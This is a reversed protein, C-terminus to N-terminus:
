IVIEEFLLGSKAYASQKPAVRIYRALAAIVASALDIRKSEMELRSRDPAINGNGDARATVCDMHWNLVPHNAHRVKGELTAELLYKMPANLTPPGQRVEVCRYGADVLEQIFKDANWPDYCIEKIKYVAALADIRQRVVDYRITPGPTTELAGTLIWEELPQHVRRTLYSLRQEPIWVSPLIDLSGDGAPFVAALATMATTSSLDLGIYCDRDILPRLPKGCALWADAPMWRDVKQGWVSGHYRKYAAQEAPKDLAEDCIAKIQEDKLFGGNDEHSPNADVRFQRSKWYEPDSKLREEDAAYIAPYFTDSKVMGALVQRAYEHEAWCIPSDYVDGATTIEFILSEPRAITGSIIVDRLTKAKATKFRHLEDLLGLSPEIGDQLDGDASLVSYFGHGDKRVIRRTSPLVKLRDRLDSNGDILRTAARYVISAQDKASAAGYAEPNNLEEGEILLHYIPLGGLLFSKGNKKPVEVYARKYRRTGRDVDVNGYIARLDRRQWALLSFGLPAFLVKDFFREVRCAGCM